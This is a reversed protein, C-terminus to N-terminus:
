IIFFTKKYLFGSHRYHNWLAHKKNNIFLGKSQIDGNIYTVFVFGNLNLHPNISFEVWM